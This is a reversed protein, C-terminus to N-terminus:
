LFLTSNNTSMKWNLLISSFQDIIFFFMCCFLRLSLSLIWLYGSFRLILASTTFFLWISFKKRSIRKEYILFKAINLIRYVNFMDFFYLYASYKSLFCPFWIGFSWSVNYINHFFLFRLSFENSLYLHYVPVLVVFIIFTFLDITFALQFYLIEQFFCYVVSCCCFFMWSKEQYAESKEENGRKWEMATAM